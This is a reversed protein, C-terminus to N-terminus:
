RRPSTGATALRSGGLEDVSLDRAPGHSSARVPVPQLKVGDITIPVMDPRVLGPGIRALEM